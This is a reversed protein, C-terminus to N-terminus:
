DGVDLRLDGLGGAGGGVAGGVGWYVAVPHDGWEFDQRAYLDVGGAGGAPDIWKYGEAGGVREVWFGAAACYRDAALVGVYVAGSVCPVACVWRGPVAADSSFDVRRGVGCVPCLLADGGDASETWAAVGRRCIDLAAARQRVESLVGGSREGANWVEHLLGHDQGDLTVYAFDRQPTGEYAIEGRVVAREWGSGAVGDRGGAGM